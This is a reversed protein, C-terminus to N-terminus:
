VLEFFFFFLAVAAFAAAVKYSFHKKGASILEKREPEVLIPKPQTEGLERYYQTHIKEAFKSVNESAHINSNYIEYAAAGIRKEIEEKHNHGEPLDWEPYEWVAETVHYQPKGSCGYIISSFVALVVFTIFFGVKRTKREHMDEESIKM